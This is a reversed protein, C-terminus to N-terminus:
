VGDSVIDGLIKFLRPETLPYAVGKEIMITLRNLTTKLKAAADEM